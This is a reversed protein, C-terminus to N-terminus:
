LEEKIEPNLYNKKIWLVVFTDVLPKWLRNGIGYKSKGFRRRRHNVEVEIVRAGEIKLLTPLFRHFGNYFKFNKIIERRYVKLMCGTDKINDRTIKNRIWNAIKSSIKKKFSDKRVKRWGSIVDYGQQIYSVLRPIDQPDNQLDADLTVVIEGGAKQFGAKLAASQGYNKLFSIVRVCADRSKIEKLVDLSRDRSGDDIFIIEYDNKYRKLANKLEQYLLPINKEENFLPIVVSIKM